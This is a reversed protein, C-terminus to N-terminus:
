EKDGAAARLRAELAEEQPTLARRARKKKATRLAEGRALAKQRGVRLAIDRKAQTKRKQYQQANKTHKWAKCTRCRCGGRNYAQNTGHQAFDQRARPKKEETM